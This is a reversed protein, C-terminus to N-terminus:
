TRGNKRGGHYLLLSINRRGRFSNGSKRPMKLSGSEYVATLGSFAGILLLVIATIYGTGWEVAGALGGTGLLICVFSIGSLISPLQM